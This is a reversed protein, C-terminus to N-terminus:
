ARTGRHGVPRLSRACTTLWAGGFLLSATVDTPWHAGRYLRALAVAVVVLAAAGVVAWRWRARTALCVVAAIGGYLCLSAATHGSPFSSTPPLQADLHPVPPRGRDVITTTLLFVGLEGVLAAALLLVPWWARLLLGAAVAAVAGVGIVVETSGLDAVWQSPTALAAVRHAAFWRVLWGDAREVDSDAEPGSVLWGALLLLGFLVALVVLLRAALRVPPRAVVGGPTRRRPDLQVSV